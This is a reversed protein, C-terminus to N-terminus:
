KLTFRFQEAPKGPLTVKLLAKTGAQAKFQGQAMFSNDGSPALKVAQKETGNLLTLEAVVGKTAIAEGHHSTLYVMLMNGETSLEARAGSTAEAMVGKHMAKMDGDAFALTASLALMLTMVTKKM